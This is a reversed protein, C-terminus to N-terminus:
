FHKRNRLLIYDGNGMYTIMVMGDDWIQVNFFAGDFVSADFIEANGFRNSKYVFFTFDLADSTIVFKNPEDSPYMTLDCMVEIIEDGNNVYNSYPGYFVGNVKTTIYTFSDQYVPTFWDPIDKQSQSLAPLTLLSLIAFTFLKSKNDFRDEIFLGIGLGVLFGTIPAGFKARLMDNFGIHTVHSLFYDGIFYGIVAFLIAILFVLVEKM